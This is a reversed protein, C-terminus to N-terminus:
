IQECVQNWAIRHEYGTDPDSEILAAYNFIFDTTDPLLRLYYSLSDLVGNIIIECGNQALFQDRLKEIRDEDGELTGATSLMYYRRVSLARVKDVAENVHVFTIPQHKIEVAEIAHAEKTIVIDGVTNAKRDASKMRELPELTCDDYRRVQTLLCQYIAYLVLQPLRPANRRYPVALHREILEIASEISLDKPRTLVVRGLNRIKIKELLIQTVVAKAFEPSGIQELATVIEILLPGARKPTTTLKAGPRLESVFSISQTLWHTEVNRPLNKEMLFPVTVATDMGRASVGGAFEAKHASVDQSPDCAKYAALTLAAGSVGHELSGLDKATDASDGLALKLADPSGGNIIAEASAYGDVLIKQFVAERESKTLDSWAM